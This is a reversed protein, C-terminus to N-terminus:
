KSDMQQFNFIPQLAKSFYDFSESFFDFFLFLFTTQIPANAKLPATGSPYAASALFVEM